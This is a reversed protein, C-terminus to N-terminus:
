TTSTTAPVEPTQCQLGTCSPPVCHPPQSATEGLTIEWHNIHIQQRNTINHWSLEYYKHKYNSHIKYTEASLETHDTPFTHKRRNLTDYKKYRRFQINMQNYIYQINIRFKDNYESPIRVYLM